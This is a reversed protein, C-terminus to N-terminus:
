LYMYLFFFWVSHIDLHTILHLWVHAYMSNGNIEIGKKIRDCTGIVVWCSVVIDAPVAQPSYEPHRGRPSPVAPRVRVVDHRPVVMVQGRVVLM